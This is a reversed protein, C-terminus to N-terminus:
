AARLAAAQVLSMALGTSLIVVLFALDLRVPGLSLPPLVRRLAKLPPDTPTYVVEAVVLMVGRPRWQPSFSQIADLILRGIMLLFFILLALYLLTLLLSM